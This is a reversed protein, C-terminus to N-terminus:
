PSHAPLMLALGKRQTKLLSLFGKDADIGDENIKCKCRIMTKVLYILGDVIKIENAIDAGTAKDVMREIPSIPKQLGEQIKKIQFYCYDIQSKYYIWRQLDDKFRV